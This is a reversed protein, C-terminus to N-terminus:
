LGSKWQCRNGYEMKVHYQCHYLKKSAEPYYVVDRVTAHVGPKLTSDLYNNMTEILKGELAKGSLAKPKCGAFFLAFVFLITIIKM